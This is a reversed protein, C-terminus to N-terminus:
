KRIGVGVDFGSVHLFILAALAFVMVGAMWLHGNESGAAGGGVNVSAGGSVPVGAASASADGGLSWLSPPAGPSDEVLPLAAPM